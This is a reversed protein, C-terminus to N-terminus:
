QECDRPNLITRTSRDKSTLFDLWFGDTATICYRVQYMGKNRGQLTLNLVLPGPSVLKDATAQTFSQALRCHVLQPAQGNPIALFPDGSKGITCEVEPTIFHLLSTKRADLSARIAIITENATGDNEAAFTVEFALRREKPDFDIIPGPELLPTLIVSPAPFLRDWIGFWNQMFAAVGVVIVAVASLVVWTRRVNKWISWTRRAKKHHSAM